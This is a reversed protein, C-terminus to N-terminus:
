VHARGIQSEHARQGREDAAPVLFHGLIGVGRAEEDLSHLFNGLLYGLTAAAATLLSAFFFLKKKM